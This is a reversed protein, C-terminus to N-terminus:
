KGGLVLMNASVEVHRNVLLNLTELFTDSLNYVNRYVGAQELEAKHTRLLTEHVQCMNNNQVADEYHEPLEQGLFDKVQTINHVNNIEFFLVLYTYSKTRRKL